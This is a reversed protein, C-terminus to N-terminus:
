PKDESSFMTPSLLKLEMEGPTTPDCEMPEGRSLSTSGKGTSQKSQEDMGQIKAM